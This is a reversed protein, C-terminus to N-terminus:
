SVLMRGLLQCTGSTSKRDTRSGTFDADRYRKQDVDKGKEDLDLKTSTSKPTTILKLKLMDFKKLMDQTYREQNIFIGEESQKIQLGLFYKLEGMMSMEFEGHMEKSFNKCLAENTAGFVIDDLELLEKLGYLAKHLKFVHDSKEIDRGPVGKSGAVVVAVDRYVNM